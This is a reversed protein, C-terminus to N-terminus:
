LVFFVFCKMLKAGGCFYRVGDFNDFIYDLKSKKANFKQRSQTTMRKKMWAVVALPRRSLPNGDWIQDM